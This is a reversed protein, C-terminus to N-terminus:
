FNSNIDIVNPKNSISGNIPKKQRFFLKDSFSFLQNTLNGFTTLGTRTELSIRGFLKDFMFTQFGTFDHFYDIWMPFGM